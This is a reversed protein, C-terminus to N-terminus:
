ISHSAARALAECILQRQLLPCDIASILHFCGVTELILKKTAGRLGSFRDVPRCAIIESLLVWISSHHRGGAGDRNLGPETKLGNPRRRIPASVDEVAIHSPLGRRLQRQGQFTIVHNLTQPLIRRRTM